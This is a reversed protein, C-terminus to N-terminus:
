FHEGDVYFWRDNTKKFTSRELLNLTHNDKKYNAQFEVIGDTDDPGGDETSIITLSLWEVDEMWELTELANFKSAAPGGMTKQIYAVNKLTFAGNIVLCNQIRDHLSM